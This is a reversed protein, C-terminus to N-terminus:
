RINLPSEGTNMMKTVHVISVEQSAGVYSEFPMKLEDVASFPIQRRDLQPTNLNSFRPEYGHLARFPM